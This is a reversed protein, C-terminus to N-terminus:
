SEESIIIKLADILFLMDDTTGVSIRLYNSIRKKNFWRVLVGSERLKQFIVEARIDPHETFIFNAMSNTCSFGLERLLNSTLIRTKIIEGRTYEFYEKDLISATGAALTMSNVNYPNFSFKVRNLATILEHCGVAYGLRAGALSYSKSFTGVILLNDFEGVLEVCSEAGFDVYAEDVVVLNNKNHELLGRIDNKNVALGTPANPNAIVITRDIDYYDQVALSFDERLPVIKADINYLNCFVPFFGYTIDAFAAGKETFAQFVFALTEDSGNSAFVMDRGVGFHRALVDLFIACDPDSYLRLNDAQRCVAEVAKPSPPYPNENTNLKIYKGTKPQEGPVYPNLGALRKCLFGSM